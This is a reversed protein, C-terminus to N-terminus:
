VRKKMTRKFIPMELEVEPAAISTERDFFIIRISKTDSSFVAKKMGQIIWEREIMWEISIIVSM